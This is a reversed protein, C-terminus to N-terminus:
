QSGGGDPVSMPADRGGGEAVLTVGAHVEDGKTVLVKMGPPLIIESRSGFRVFGIRQGALLEDGINVPVVVRRAVAGTMASFQLPGYMTMMDVTVRQNSDISEPTNAPLFTGPVFEYGTVVGSAPARLAHVDLLSIYVNIRIRGDALPRVEDIVGDSVAVVAQPDPQPRAPDRFFFLMIMWLLLFLGAPLFLWAKKRWIGIFVSGLFLLMPLIVFWFGEAAIM